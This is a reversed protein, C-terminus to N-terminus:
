GCCKRSDWCKPSHLMLILLELDDKVVYQTLGAQAVHFGTDVFLYVFLVGPQSNCTGQSGMPSLGDLKM